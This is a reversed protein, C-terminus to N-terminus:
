QGLLKGELKELQFRSIDEAQWEKEYMRYSLHRVPPVDEPHDEPTYYRVFIDRITGIKGDVTVIEHIKFKGVDEETAFYFHPNLMSTIMKRM